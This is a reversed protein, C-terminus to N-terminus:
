KQIKAFVKATRMLIQRFTAFIIAFVNVLQVFLHSWTKFKGRECSIMLIEIIKAIKKHWFRFNERFAFVFVKQKLEIQVNLFKHAGSVTGKYKPIQSSSASYRYM